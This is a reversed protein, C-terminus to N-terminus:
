IEKLYRQAMDKYQKKLPIEKPIEFDYKKRQESLFQELAPPMPREPIALPRDAKRDESQEQERLAKDAEMLRQIIDAQRHKLQQKANPNFLAEEELKNMAEQVERLLKALPSNGEGEGRVQDELDKVKARLMQQQHIIRALHESDGGSQDGEGGEGQEGPKEGNPGEEGDGDSEGKEEGEGEGDGDQNGEEEGGMADGLEEQGTIIDQLQDGKGGGGEEGPMPEGDEGGGSGSSPMAQMQQMLSGLLDELMNALNNANSMAFRQSNRAHNVQRASLHESAKDNHKLWEHTEKQITSGLQMVRESLAILSDTMMKANSRLERQKQQFSPFTPSAVPTYREMDILEEQEFSYRLLNSLLQRTAKIDIDLQEMDMGAAQQKMMNAMEQMQDGANQQKPKTKSPESGQDMEQLIDELQDKIDQADDGLDDINLPQKMQNNRPLLDNDIEEKIKDFAENIEEQKANLEEPSSNNDKALDKQEKALQDLEKAMEELAKQMELREILAQIREMNMQFLKNQEQIKEMADMAKSKNQEKLLDQLKKLQEQLEEDRLQELEKALEKRQEDLPSAKEENLLDQQEIQKELQKQIKELEEEMIEHADMLERLQQQQDWNQESSQLMESKAREFIEDMQKSNSISRQLSKNVEQSHEKLEAEMESQSQIQFEFVESRTSKPGNIGDNDTAQIFYRIKEGSQPHLSKIDFYHEFYSATNQHNIPLNKIQQTKIEGKDDIIQAIFQLSSLGYDDSALGSLVLQRDDEEHSLRELQIQPVEDKVVEIEYQAPVDEKQHQNGILIQYSENVKVEKQFTYEGQHGDIKEKVTASWLVEIDDTHQANITWTIRTGEPVQVDTIGNVARAPIKTYAPYQLHMEVEQLSARDFVELRYTPSKYRGAQFHFDFSEEVRSWQYQFWNSKLADMPLKKNNVVLYFTEEWHGGELSVDILADTNRAVKLANTNVKFLFPAPPDFNEQANLWRYGTDKLIQPAIIGALILLALSPLVWKLYKKNAKLNIISPFSFVKLQETRQSISALVLSNSEHDIHQEELELLNLLKDQIDEFHAGIMLAAEKYSIRKLLHYRRASPLIFYKAFIFLGGLSYLSILPIKLGRPLYFFYEIVLLLIAGAALFALTWLFGRIMQNWYFKDIFKKLQEKIM